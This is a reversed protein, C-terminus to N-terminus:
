EEYKNGMGCNCDECLAQLHNMVTKGGRSVHKFHDVYLKM